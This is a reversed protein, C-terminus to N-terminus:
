GNIAEWLKELGEETNQKVLFSGVNVFDVGSDVIRKINTDKVAGDIGIRAPLQKSKLQKVKNLSDEIFEQGQFGPVVSMLLVTDIENIFPELKEIPTEHKLVLGAELGKKKIENICDKVSDGTELHFLVRKFDAKILDEIWDQPHAVMLHAEKKLNSTIKATELPSITKNPVFINDAFDIHVWGDKLSQSQELQALDNEYQEQSVALIAPIIQIM